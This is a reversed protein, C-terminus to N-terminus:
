DAAFEYEDWQSGDDHPDFAVQVYHDQGLGAMGVIYRGGRVDDPLANFAGPHGPYGPYVADGFSFVAGDRTTIWYGEGSPTWAGGVVNGGVKWEPHEPISGHYPAIGHKDQFVGGDHAVTIHGGQPRAIVVAMEHEEDPLLIGRGLTPPANDYAPLGCGVFGLSLARTRRYVGDGNDQSGAQGSSTNGGIDILHLPDPIAEIWEVHQIGRHADRFDWFSWAGIVPTPSWRGARRYADASTPTYASESPLKLGVGRAVAVLLDACWAEPPRGLAASFPNRNGAQEVTGIKSRLQDGFETLSAM